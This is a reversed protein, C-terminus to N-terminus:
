RELLKSFRTQRVMNGKARATELAQHFQTVDRYGLIKDQVRDASPSLIVTCPLDSVGLIRAAEQGKPQDKDLHVAIFHTNIYEAMQPQSLTENELKKCYHCWDAGFVIMMPLGTEM